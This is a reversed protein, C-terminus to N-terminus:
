RRKENKVESNKDRKKKRSEKLSSFTLKYCRKIQGWLPPFVM